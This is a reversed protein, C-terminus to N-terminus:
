RRNRGDSGNRDANDKSSAQKASRQEKESVQTNKAGPAQSTSSAYKGHTFNNNSMTPEKEDEGCPRIGQEFVVLPIQSSNWYPRFYGFLACLCFRRGKM